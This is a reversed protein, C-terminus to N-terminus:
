KLAAFHYVGSGIEVGVYNDEKGIVKLGKIESLVLGSEKVSNADKAPIYVTATTNHPIEVDM